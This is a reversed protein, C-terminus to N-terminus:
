EHCQACGDSILLFGLYSASRRARQCVRHPHRWESKRLLKCSSLEVRRLTSHVVRLLVIEMPAVETPKMKVSKAVKM